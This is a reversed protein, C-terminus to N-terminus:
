FSLGFSGYRQAQPRETYQYTTYSFTYRFGISRWRLGFGLQSEGVFPIKHVRPSPAFTNGDLFVNRAIARGEARAFAYAHVHQTRTGPGPATTPSPGFDDPLPLGVRVTAGAHANTEVNGLAVGAHPIVDAFRLRGWPRRREDLRLQLGPEDKLQYEWGRPLRIGLTEHWWTQVEGAYSDPGIMGARLELTRERTATRTSVFSGGYLWGAYPRDNTVRTRQEIARPTYIEQGTALGFSRHEDPGGLWAAVDDAWRPMAGEDAWWTLRAGQTYNWDTGPGPVFADTDNDMVTEVAGAHSLTAAAALVLLTILVFALSRALTRRSM